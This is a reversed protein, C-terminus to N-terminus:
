CTNRTRCLTLPSGYATLRDRRLNADRACRLLHQGPMVLVRHMDMHLIRDHVHNFLEYQLILPAPDALCKCAVSHAVGTTSLHANSDASMSGAQLSDSTYRLRLCPGTEGDLAIM